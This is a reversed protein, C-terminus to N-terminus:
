SEDGVVGVGGLGGIVKESCGCVEGGLVVSAWNAAWIGYDWGRGGPRAAGYFPLFWYGDGRRGAVFPSGATGFELDICEAVFFPLRAPPAITGRRAIVCAVPLRSLLSM